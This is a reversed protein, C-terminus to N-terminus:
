SAVAIGPPIGPDLETPLAALDVEPLLNPTEEIPDETEDRPSDLAKVSKRRTPRVRNALDKMDALMFAGEALRAVAQYTQDFSELAATKANLTTEARRREKAVEELANGLAEVKPRLEEAVVLPSFQLGGYLSTPWRTEPDACREVLREAQRHLVVPDQATRGEINLLKASSGTGYIREISGRLDSVSRFVMEAWSDRRERLGLDGGLEAVHAEDAHVMQQRTEALRTSLQRLLQGTDVEVLEEAGVPRLKEAIMRAATTGHTDLAAEVLVATKQRDTVLKSSM